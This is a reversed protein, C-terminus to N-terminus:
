GVREVEFSLRRRTAVDWGRRSEAIGLGKDLTAKCEFELGTRGSIEAWMKNFSEVNHVFIQAGPKMGGEVDGVAQGLIMTGPSAPRLLKVCNELLDRQREWGFLHVVQGMHIIDVKGVLGSLPSGDGLDFADAQMLTAELTDRDRFFDYGLRIFEGQLEAGHLNGGPAGDHALKRIDQGICCGIDLYTAGERIRSM